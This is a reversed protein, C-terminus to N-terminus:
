FYCTIGLMTIIERWRRCETEELQHTYTTHKQMQNFSYGLAQEGLGITYMQRKESIIEATFNVITVVSKM